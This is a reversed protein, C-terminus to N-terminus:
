LSSEQDVRVGGGSGMSVSLHKLLGSTVMFRCLPKIETPM